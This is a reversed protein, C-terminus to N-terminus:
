SSLPVKSCLAALANARAPKNGSGCRPRPPSSASSRARPHRHGFRRGAAAPRDPRDHLRSRDPVPRSRGFGPSTRLPRRSLREPGSLDAAPEARRAPRLRLRPTGDHRPRLEGAGSRHNPHPPPHGGAGRAKEPGGGPQAQKPQFRRLLRRAFGGLGRTHDGKPAPEVKIVDAGLEAFILGATPGMVTHSFELVRLGALPIASM